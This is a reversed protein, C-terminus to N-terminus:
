RSWKGGYVYSVNKKIMKRAYVTGAMFTLPVIADAITLAAAGAFLKLQREKKPKPKYPKCGKLCLEFFIEETRAM